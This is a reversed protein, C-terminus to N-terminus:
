DASHCEGRAGISLMSAEPHRNRARAHRAMLIRSHSDREFAALPTNRMRFGSNASSPGDISVAPSGNDDRKVAHAGFSPSIEVATGPQASDYLCATAFDRNKSDKGRSSRECTM